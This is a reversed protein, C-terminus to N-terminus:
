PRLLRLAAFIIAGLWGPILTALCLLAAYALQTQRGFDTGSSLDSYQWAAWCLLMAPLPFASALIAAGLPMHKRLILSFYSATAASILLFAALLLIAM